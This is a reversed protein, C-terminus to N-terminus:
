LKVTPWISFLYTMKDSSKNSFSKNSSLIDSVTLGLEVAQEERRRAISMLDDQFESLEQLKESYDDGGLGRIKKLWFDRIKQNKGQGWLVEM